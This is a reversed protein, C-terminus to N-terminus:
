PAVGQKKAKAIEALRTTLSQMATKIHPSTDGVHNPGKHEFIRTLQQRAQEIMQEATKEDPLKKLCLERLGDDDICRDRKMQERAYRLFTNAADDVRKSLAPDKRMKQRISLLNNVTGLPEGNGGKPWQGLRMSTRLTSILKRQNPAKADFVVNGQHAKVYTEALKTCDDIDTGHKNTTGDIAGFYGGEMVKLLFKIQTDRGKGSETGLQTAAALLDDMKLTNPGAPPAPPTTTTM